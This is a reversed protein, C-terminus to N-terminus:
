WSRFQYICERQIFTNYRLVTCPNQFPVFGESLKISKWESSCRRTIRGVWYTCVNLQYTDHVCFSFLLQNFPFISISIPSLHVFSTKSHYGLSHLVFRWKSSLVIFTASFYSLPLQYVISLTFHNYDSSQYDSFNLFTHSSLQEFHFRISPHQLM